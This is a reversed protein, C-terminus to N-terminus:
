LLQLVDFYSIVLVRDDLIILNLLLNMIKISYQLRENQIGGQSLVGSVACTDSPRIEGTVTASLAHQHPVTRSLADHPQVLFDTTSGCVANAVNGGLVVCDAATLPGYTARM